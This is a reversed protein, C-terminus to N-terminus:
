QQTPGKKEHHRSTTDAAAASPNQHNTVDQKTQKKPLNKRSFCMLLAQDENLTMAMIPSESQIQRMHLVQPINVGQTQTSMHRLSTSLFCTISWPPLSKHVLPQLPPFSRTSWSYLVRSLLHFFAIQSQKTTSEPIVDSMDFSLYLCWLRWVSCLSILDHDYVCAAVMTSADRAIWGRQKVSFSPLPLSSAMPNNHHVFLILVTCSWPLGWSTTSLQSCSQISVLQRLIQAVCYELKNFHSSITDRMPTRWCM